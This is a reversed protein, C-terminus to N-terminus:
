MSQKSGRVRSQIGAGLRDWSIGIRIGCISYWLRDMTLQFFAGLNQRVVAVSSGLFVLLNNLGDISHLFHDCCVELGYM